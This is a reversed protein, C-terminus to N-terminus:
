LFDKLLIGIEGQRIKKMSRREIQRISERTLGFYEGIEDLTFGEEYGIGFRMKIVQQERTGLKSLAELIKSKLISKELIVDTGPRDDTLYFKKSGSNDELTAASTDFSVISSQTLKSIKRATNTEYHM